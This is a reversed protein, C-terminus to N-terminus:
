RQTRHIALRSGRNGRRQGGHHRLIELELGLRAIAEQEIAHSIKELEEEIVCLRCCRCEVDRERGTALM